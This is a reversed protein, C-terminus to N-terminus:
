EASSMVGDWWEGGPTGRKPRFSAGMEIARLAQAMEQVSVGGRQQWEQLLRVTSETRVPPVLAGLVRRAKRDDTAVAGNRGIALAGSAAEGDGLERALQLFCAQEAETLAEATLIGESLLPDLEVRARDQPATNNDPGCLWMAERRVADAILLRSPIARLIIAFRGTAYINLVACADLVITAPLSSSEQDRRSSSSRM